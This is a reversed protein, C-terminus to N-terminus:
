TLNYLKLNSIRDEVVVVVVVEVVVELMDESAQLDDQQRQAV